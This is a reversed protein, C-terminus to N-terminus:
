AHGVEPLHCAAQHGPRHALLLPAEVACRDFAKPCRARFPCGVITSTASPIEGELRIRRRSAEVEPDPVPVASLLAETYPHLPREYIADRDAVEVIRGLYM